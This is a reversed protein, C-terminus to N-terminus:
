RFTYTIGVKFDPSDNIGFKFEFGVRERLQLGALLNVGPEIDTDDDAPAVEDDLSFINLAPGAGVYLRWTDQPLPFWYTFEFNLALLTAHDGFGLEANPQFRLAEVIPESIWHGGVYFQDPDTSLGARVGFGEQASAPAAATLALALIASRVIWKSM